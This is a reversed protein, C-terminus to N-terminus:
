QYFLTAVLQTWPAPACSPPATPVYQHPYRPPIIISEYPSSIASTYYQPLAPPGPSPIVSAHYRPLLPPCPFVTPKPLYPPPIFPSPPPSCYHPLVPLCPQFLVPPVAADYPPPAAYGPAAPCNYSTKPISTEQDFSPVSTTIKLTFTHNQLRGKKAPMPWEGRKGMNGPHFDQKLQQEFHELERLELTVDWDLLRCFAREWEKLERRSVHRAIGWWHVQGWPCMDSLFKAAVMLSPILLRIAWKGNTEPHKEKLRNLLLLSGYIIWKPPPSEPPFLDKLYPRLHVNPRSSFAFSISQPCGFVHTFFAEM